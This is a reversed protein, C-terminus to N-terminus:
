IRGILMELALNGDMAGTKINRDIEYLSSLTRSLKSISFRDAASAAKKVRYSNVKLSKAIEETSVGDAKFEKVEYMLEFQNILLGLLSFIEGGSGLMNHLLRFATEKRGASIADLFNFAFRDMDGHLTQNIDEQTVTGGGSYAIIKKIDNELNYIRYESERNFYGTEDIFYKLDARSIEVGAAKFRKGAFAMLQTSDLGTFNYCRCHKKLFKVLSSSEEPKVCSLVLIARDNPNEMYETLRRSEEEGFGKATKKVLPAFGSVWIVRRKSFVSFTNCAELIMDSSCEEGNLKVFDMDRMAEDTFKEALSKCAWETLYEEEGYMFIVPPFDGQVMDKHFAQFAHETKAQNYAKYAM